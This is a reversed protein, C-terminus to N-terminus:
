SGSGRRARRQGRRANIVPVPRGQQTESQIEDLIRPLDNTTSQSSIKKGEVISVGAAQCGDVTKVALECIRDLTPAVDHEDLLARAVEAFTEALEVDEQRHAM